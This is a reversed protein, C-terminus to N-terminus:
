SISAMTDKKTFDSAVSETGLIQHVTAPREGPIFIAPIYIQGRMM